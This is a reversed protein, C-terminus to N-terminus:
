SPRRGQARRWESPCHGTNAKFLKSFHYADHFHLAVTVEKETM